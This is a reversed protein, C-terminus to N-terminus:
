VAGKSHLSKDGSHGPRRFSLPSLGSLDGREMACENNTGRKRADRPLRVRVEELQARLDLSEVSFSALSAVAPVLSEPQLALPLAHGPADALVTRSTGSDHLSGLIKAFSWYCELSSDVFGKDKM